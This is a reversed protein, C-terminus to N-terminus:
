TNADFVSGDFTLGDINVSSGDARHIVIRNRYKELWCGNPLYLHMVTPIGEMRYSHFGVGDSYGYVNEPPISEFAEYIDRSVAICEPIEPLSSMSDMLKKLSDLTV